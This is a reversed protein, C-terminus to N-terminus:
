RHEDTNRPPELEQRPPNKTGTTREPPPAAPPKVAMGATIAFRMAEEMSMDIPRISSRPVLTTFGGMAYSLPMYVAVLDRGATFGAPLDSFDERTLLGLYQPAAPDQPDGLTVMVVQATKKGEKSAFFGMLDRISGYISKVMPIRDFAEGARGLLAQVIWTNVFVGVFFMVLLSLVTGMGPIYWRGLVWHLPKGLLSEFLGGLFVIIAITGLIPLMVLFGKLLYVLIRHALSKAQRKM